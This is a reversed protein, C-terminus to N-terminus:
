VGAKLEAFIWQVLDAQDAPGTKFQVYAFGLASGASAAFIKLIAGRLEQTLRPDVAEYVTTAYQGFHEVRGLFLDVFQQVDGEEDVAVATDDRARKRLAGLTEDLRGDDLTVGQAAAPESTLERRWARVWGQLMEELAVGGGGPAATRAALWGSLHRAVRDIGEILGGVSRVQPRPFDDFLGVLFVVDVFSRKLYYFAQRNHSHIVKVSALMAVAKGDRIIRMGLDLDEAYDGRYRYQAFVDRRILCAVDSLQGQARLAMHDVGQLRGLRDQDRCGLFRYHTDIMSDYMMDSDSRPTESCSVAALGQEAHDLLYRLMGYMWHEGIPYADQVMFLLYDGSAQEAGLNRAGSHSFAAPAIEAVTCGWHRAVEVSGDTSGSDVIVVEVKGVGQQGLLKRLLMPFEKGPNLTPIVVSVTAAVPDIDGVLDPHLRVPRSVVATAQFTWTQAPAASKQRLLDWLFRRRSYYYPLRKVLGLLGHRRTEGAVLGLAASMSHSLHRPRIARLLDTASRIPRTLRWSRSAYIAKIAEMHGELNVKLANVETRSEDLQAQLLRSHQRVADLERLLVRRVEQTQEQSEKLALRASGIADDLRDAVALLHQAALFQASWSGLKASLDNCKERPQNKWFQLAAFVEKVLPPCLPDLELDQLSHVSHRLASDVSEVIFRETMDPNLPLGLEGSMRNLPKAPDALFDDYDVLVWAQASETAALAALTYRLWLSYAKGRDMADRRELSRAVSLPHRLAVVLAPSMGCHALVERWVPWLISTRPDKFGFTEVRSTKERILEIAELVFGQAQLRSEWGAAFDATHSWNSGLAALMRENLAYIDLDEFFGKDNNASAAPM